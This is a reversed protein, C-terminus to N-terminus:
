WLFGIGICQMDLGQLFRDSVELFNKSFEFLFYFIAVLISIDLVLEKFLESLEPLLSRLGILLLEFLVQLYRLQLLLVILCLNSLDFIVYLVEGFVVSDVGQVELEFFAVELDFLHGDLLSVHLGEDLFLLPLNLFEKM